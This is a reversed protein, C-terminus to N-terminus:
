ADCTGDVDLNFSGANANVRMDLYPTTSGDLLPSEWTNADLQVLGTRDLNNSGLAGNWRIRMPSGPAVCVALSGANLSMSASRLGPPVNVVASGANVTATIDGVANAGGLLLDAKGANVTLNVPGLNGDGLEISAEGANVTVALAVLPDMPVQVTWDARGAAGFFSGRSGADISVTAGETEIRPAKGDSETGSISWASGPSPRMTLTGCSLEVNLQGSGAFTGSQTAFPAGSPQGGCGASIPAGSFGTALLGGGMIGFVIAAAAGGLPELRTRRLLLGVGWAILLLPWLSPWRRILEPDILGARTGLAVAGVIIFFLGWGLLRRDVRM